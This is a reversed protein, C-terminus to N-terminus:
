LWRRYWFWGVLVLLVHSWRGADLDLWWWRLRLNKWGWRERYTTSSKYKMKVEAVVCSGNCAYNFITKGVILLTEHMKSTKKVKGENEPSHMPLRNQRRWSVFHFKQHLYHLSNSISDSINSGCWCRVMLVRDPQNESFFLLPCKWFGQSGKQGPPRMALRRM